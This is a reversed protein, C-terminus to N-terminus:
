TREQAIREKRVAGGRHGQGEDQHRRFSEGKETGSQYVRLRAERHPRRQLQSRLCSM